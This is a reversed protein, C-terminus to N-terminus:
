YYWVSNRPRKNPTPVSSIQPVMFADDSWRDKGPKDRHPFSSAVENDVPWHQYHAAPPRHPLFQPAHAACIDELGGGHLDLCPLLMNVEFFGDMAPAAAPDEVLLDEVHWGPCTKTLYESISGASGGSTASFSATASPFAATKIPNAPVVAATPDSVLAKGKKSKWIAGDTSNAAAAAETEPASLPAASFRVGTLLFRSHKMTLHNAGHIAADCERCLIARDQQCFLIARKEQCVDCLPNSHVSPYDLSFRRHKGSLKNACHVRRDCADCLAAEDACCFVLAEKKGCVDCLIKMVCDGSKWEEEERGGRRFVKKLQQDISARLSFLCLRSSVLRRGAEGRRVCTRSTFGRPLLCSESRRQAKHVDRVHIFAIYADSPTVWLSRM